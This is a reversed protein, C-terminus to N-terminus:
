TAALGRQEVVGANRADSRALAPRKSLREVYGALVPDEELMGFRLLTRITSGLVVDAMSFTEGLIFGDEVAGRLAVLVAEYSGWGVSSARFSWGQSKAVVGPELVSPSFFSWRLYAARRPDDLPPALRGPAYKDALYLCIAAAETVVVDGDLLTPIKGMPNLHLLEAKADPGALIDVFRLEYPEGLEELAWVISAARSFPHHFLTLTM